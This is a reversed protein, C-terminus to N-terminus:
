RAGTELYANFFNIALDCLNIVSKELEEKNLEGKKVKERLIKIRDRYDTMERRTLVM